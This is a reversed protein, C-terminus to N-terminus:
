PGEQGADNEEGRDAAQIPGTAALDNNKSNLNVSQGNIITNGHGEALESINYM